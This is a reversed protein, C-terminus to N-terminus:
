QLRDLRDDILLDSGHVRELIFDLKFHLQQLLPAGILLDQDFTKLIADALDIQGQWRLQSCQSLRVEIGDHVLVALMELQLLLRTGLVSSVHKNLGLLLLLLIMEVAVSVLQSGLVMLQATPAAVLPVQGRLRM